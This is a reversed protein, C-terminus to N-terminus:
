ADLERSKKLNEKWWQLAQPSIGVATCAGALKFSEFAGPGSVFEEITFKAKLNNGVSAEQSV